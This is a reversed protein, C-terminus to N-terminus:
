QGMRMKSQLLINSFPNPLHLGLINMRACITCPTVVLYEVIAIDKLQRLLLGGMAHLDRRAMQAPFLLLGHLNQRLAYPLLPFAGRMHVVLVWVRNLRPLVASSNIPSRRPSIHNLHLAFDCQQLIV